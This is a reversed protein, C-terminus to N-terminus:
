KANHIYKVPTICVKGQTSKLVVKKSAAEMTLLKRRQISDFFDKETGSLREAIFAQKAEKGISEAHLVDHEVEVSCPAGSSICYLRDKDAITFPNTFSQIATITQQVAEESKRIQAKELERHKNGKPVDSDGLM